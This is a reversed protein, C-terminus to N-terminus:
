VIVGEEKPPPMHVIIQTTAQKSVFVGHKDGGPGVANKVFKYPYLSNISSNDAKCSISLVPNTSKQFLWPRWANIGLGQFSEGSQPRHM